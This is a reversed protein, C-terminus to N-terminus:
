YDRYLKLIQEWLNIGEEMADSLSKKNGARTGSFVQKLELFLGTLTVGLGLNSRLSGGLAGVFVRKPNLQPKFICPSKLVVTSPPPIIPNQSPNQNSKTSSPTLAM